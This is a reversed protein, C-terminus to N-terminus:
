SQYFKYKYKTFRDVKIEHFITSLLVFHGFLFRPLTLLRLLHLFSLLLNRGPFIMLGDHHLRTVGDHLTILAAPRLLVASEAIKTPTQLPERHARLAPLLLAHHLGPVTHDLM